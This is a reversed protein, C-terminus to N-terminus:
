YSRCQIYIQCHIPPNTHLLCDDRSLLLATTKLWRVFCAPSPSESIGEKCSQDCSRQSQFEDKAQKVTSAKLHTQANTPTDPHYSIVVRATGRGSLGIILIPESLIRGCPSNSSTLMQDVRWRQMALDQMHCLGVHQSAQASDM